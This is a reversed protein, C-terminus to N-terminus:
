ERDGALVVGRVGQDRLVGGDVAGAPVRGDFGCEHHAWAQAGGDGAVASPDHVLSMVNLQIMELQEGRKLENFRGNLGYGANNVLFDINIRERELQDAIQQPAEAKALDAAIVRVSIGGGQELEAALKDLKDKSRAVLVLNHGDRAFLKALELGIGGSAGTILATQNQKSTMAAFYASAIM